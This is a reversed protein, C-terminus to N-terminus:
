PRAGGLTRLAGLIAAEVLEWDHVVMAYDFRLTMYGWLAAHADRVLDKHRHPASNHGEVGDTEVLLRDGILADVVGVSAISRQTRVRLGHRRLRWRLLSELGSDADDRALTLAERMVANSRKRLWRLGEETIMRQRLASELVVFFEEVGVCRFIQCLIRPVSPTAGADGRPGDDWHEVCGCGTDHYRRQGDCMWVHPAGQPSLTWLGLHRAATLCGVRGGHAAVARIAPCTAPTTYVGRRARHITGADVMQRLAQGSVGSRRLRATTVIEGRECMGM